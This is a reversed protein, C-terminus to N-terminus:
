AVNDDEGDGDLDEDDDAPGAVVLAPGGAAAPVREDEVGEEDAGLRRVVTTWTGSAYLRTWGGAAAFKLCGSGDDVIVRHALVVATTGDRLVVDYTHMTHQTMM